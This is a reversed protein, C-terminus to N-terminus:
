IPPLCPWLERWVAAGQAGPRIEVEAGRGARRVEMEYSEFAAARVIRVGDAGAGALAVSAPHKRDLARLACAGFAAYDVTVRSRFVGDGTSAAPVCGALALVLAVGALRAAARVRAPVPAGDRASM